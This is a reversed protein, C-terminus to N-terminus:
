LDAVFENSIDPAFRVSSAWPSGFATQTKWIGADVRVRVAGPQLTISSFPACDELMKQCTPVEAVIAPPQTRSPLISAPVDILKAEAAVTFPRASAAASTGVPASVIIALLTVRGAQLQTVRARTRPEPDPVIRIPRAVEPRSSDRFLRRGKRSSRRWELQHRSGDAANAVRRRASRFQHAKGRTIISQTRDRSCCGVPPTGLHNLSLDAFGGHM